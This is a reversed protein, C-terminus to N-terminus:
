RNFLFANSNLLAWLLDQARSARSPGKQLYTIATDYEKPEPTRNLAALYLEEVMERDPAGAVVLQAVLGKPHALAEALTPGNVLNMAQPLSMDSRRECECSSERAPRGFLDLFGGVGVHPGPLQEARFDPPVEPFKPRSGTALTIADMLEEASLRRPLAHSFNTEDGANWENAALSAQYARSTVITRILHQLDYGHDTLDKALAALLPENSPPNSARIDDVPDIIGRGFFYSWVRNAIARAFFPNKPSTLWEVLAERRRDTPVRPADLSAILFRPSVVRGDKPHKVDYNERKEYVIEEDSDIGPKIGVASFFAALEYYNNQTWQEFPHDHCQACVMRVGLFLQTTKEMAVKPDRTVRFYNAPPNEFTSGNSTLLERVMKDYPKNQAISKRIWERFAWMGKDGLAKRNSQLLDGWKLAWHDVFEPRGMLRDIMRGRKTRSDAPDALFALVEERRPPLGTLDLSVRRLFEADTALPSPRIKLRQLKADIHQDIYNYQPQATWQFGPRPDLITVPVTIFKGEYRVLVAAEGKRQGSLVASPKLDAISPTNSGFIAERTVDRVSGDTYHALALMQQELGPRTMFVESPLVELKQVKDTSPDGYPVGASIWHLLTQYYRSGLEIRQGGGHAVQQTPKALMLSRAPDSRNFRRGSMDYLLARYDFDSDYGRLSLKFGNKGKAAGHCTGSTCGVRNLIPTVDRIFSVPRPQGLGSVTVALETRQGGATIIVKAQGEKAPVLFGDKDLTVAEGVPQLRATSTLDIKEGNGTLGTVLVKRGEGPASFALSPPEVVLKVVKVNPKQVSALLLAALLIHM